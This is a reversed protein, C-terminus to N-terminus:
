DYLRIRRKGFQSPERAEVVKLNPLLLGAGKLFAKIKSARMQYEGLTDWDGIIYIEQTKNGCSRLQNELCEWANWRGVVMDVFIYCKLHCASTRDGPYCNVLDTEGEKELFMPVFEKELFDVPRDINPPPPTLTYHECDGTPNNTHPCGTVRRYVWVWPPAPNTHPCYPM